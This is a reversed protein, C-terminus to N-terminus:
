EVTKLSEVMDIKKLSFHAAVNVIASFLVTLAAALVYAYPPATRGFMVLDVEVTLVMWSHLFRGMVLGLAIGFLTLFINERYIYASTERDYFGLVKLTALERMRETININTLNYLVVFALAAAAVIIIVVAYDISTMSDTFSDRITSINSYSTVGSLNMLERSIRDATETSDDAYRVMLVNDSIEEDFLQTYYDETLYVYHYVYNEVIDEVPATVRRNDLELTITDGVGLDLLESLKQTIIVGEEPLEAPSGDELHRLTMFNQFETGDEVAFLYVNSVMRDAGVTDVSIQYSTLYADVGDEGDLVAEIKRKEGATLDENLGVTADYVSIEDFQKDLIDFISNHLGFGTVVLATCGGIGIVTMWFRRQYRFLNRMTVKWTFSMRKWLPKIYELFVRKGVPPSKPRMLNAPTDMLTRLCAWLSAGTTCLVAAGVAVICIGPQLKFELSPVNYMINFANAIVLPILTCGIALGVMGGTLSALFAYGIYKISIARRSFGLAKLCGIQTRQEEVMRTMTTLCALAAVLFFIVPFVTALNGVREADQSYGVLGANTDRGLLYWECEEIDAIAQRADRLQIEADELEAEAEAKGEEYDVLGDSYQTEGDLLDAYADALEQRARATEEELEQRGDALETVGSEYDALGDYYETWGDDLEQRAEELENWGDDLEQRAEEMQAWGDDLETKADKLEQSVEEMQAMNDLFEAKGEEYEKVGAQYQASGASLSASGAQLQAEGSQLAQDMTTLASDAATLGGLVGTTLTQTGAVPDEGLLALLAERDAPLMSLLGQIQIGQESGADLQALFANLVTRLPEIVQSMVDDPSTKAWQMLGAAFALVEPDAPDLNAPITLGQGTIAALIGDYSAKLAQYNQKQEELQQSGAALAASGSALQSRADELQQEADMLQAGAEELQALGDLYDAWGADYEEQAEQLQRWSDAYEMEGDNLETLGEQYSSEGDNLEVLADELQQKADALEQEGDVLEQEAQATETELQNLGDYYDAWGNDLEVKADDLEQRADALEQEVEAKADDYEQQADDLEAQAEGIVDDYRLQARQDGFFEMEDLYADMQNDYSDSYSDLEKMGEVTFYITTYYDWDFNEKPVYLFASISGSGISSSGRDTGVYLPSDAVGVITFQTRLLTDEADEDAELTITDGVSLGLQDLLRQETVCEDAAEPLRGETLALLNVQEPLSAVKVIEEGAIMDLSYEGEVDVMGAYARIAEVDDETLGLTSLVQVDMLNQRDYYGDATYEMDPSTTRLGSLFAVALASLVFLSLFRNRTRHIERFADTLLRNKKRKVM